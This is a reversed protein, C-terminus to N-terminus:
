LSLQAGFFQNKQVTTNSFVRSLGKSQLSIFGILGLPFWDQINTPLVSVSTWAGSEMFQNMPLGRNQALNFTPSPFSLPSITLHYWQSLPCSNSYVGRTPSPCPARAHQLGHTEFLWVCSLLQVSQKCFDFINHFVILSNNRVYNLCRGQIVRRHVYNLTNICM